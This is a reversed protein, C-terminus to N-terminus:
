SMKDIRKEIDEIKEKCEIIVSEILQLTDFCGTLARTEREDQHIGQMNLARKFRIVYRSHIYEMYSKMLCVSEFKYDYGNSKMIEDIFDSNYNLIVKDELVKEIDEICEKFSPSNNLTKKDIGKIIYTDDSIRKNISFTSKYLIVGSTDIIGIDLIEDVKTNMGTAQIFVIVYKNDKLFNEWYAYNRYADNLRNKLAKLIHNEKKENVRLNVANRILKNKSKFSDIKERSINYVDELSYYKEKFSMGDIVTDMHYAVNIMKEAELRELIFKDVDLIKLIEDEKVGFLEHKSELYVYWLNIKHYFILKKLVDKNYTENFPINKRLLVRRLSSESVKDLDRKVIERIYRKTIIKHM